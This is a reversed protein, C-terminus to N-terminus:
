WKFTVVSQAPMDYSFSGSSTRVVYSRPKKDLNLVYLVKSGDANEFAVNRILHDASENSDIRYAGPQVFKSIQGLIYYDRDFSWQGNYSGDPNNHVQVAGICGNCSGKYDKLYPGHHDDLALGWKLVVRAGSRIPGIIWESADGFFQDEWTLWTGSSCETMAIEKEPFREVIEALESPSGESYCHFAAGATYKRAEVDNFVTMVEQVMNHGAQRYNHDWLLIKTQLGAEEFAPGLYHGIFTQEDVEAFPLAPDEPFLGFLSTTFENDNKPENQVTIAYVKLGENQWAQVTKVLYNAFDAQHQSDLWGRIMSHNKKMWAPPSWPTGMVQLSPNLEMAKKVLPIVPLEKVDHEISFQGPVDEYSYLQPSLDSAGIGLRLFSVGIGRDPDFLQVWLKDLEEPTLAQTLLQASADTFASGFGLMQQYKKNEDVVIVTEAEAKKVFDLPTQEELLHVKDVTTLIVQVSSSVRKERAIGSNDRGSEQSPAQGFFACSTLPLAFAVLAYRCGFRGRFQRLCRSPSFRRIRSGV